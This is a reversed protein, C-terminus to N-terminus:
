GAYIDTIGWRQPTYSHYVSEGESKLRIDDM